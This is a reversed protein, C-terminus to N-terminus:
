REPSTPAKGWIRKVRIVSPAKSAETPPVVRNAESFADIERIKKVINITAEIVRGPQDLHVNHGSGEALLYESDTSLTALDRQYEPWKPLDPHVGPTVVAIPITWAEGRTAGAQRALEDIVRFENAAASMFKPTTYSSRQVALERVALASNPALFRDGFFHLGIRTAGVHSVAALARAMLRKRDMRRRSEAPLSETLREHAADVLVMGQVIEPHWAQFLRALYGGMSHGVFVYPGDIQLADLLTKLDRIMSDPTSPSPAPDSWGLGARDYQ